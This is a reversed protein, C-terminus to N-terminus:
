KPCSHGAIVKLNKSRSCQVMKSSLDCGICEARITGHSYKRIKNSFLIMDDGSGCGVDIMRITNVDAFCSVTKQATFDIAATGCEKMYSERQEVYHDFIADCIIGIRGFKDMFNYTEWIIMAPCM